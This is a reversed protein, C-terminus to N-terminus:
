FSPPQKNSSYSNVYPSDTKNALPNIENILADSLPRISLPLMTSLNLMILTLSLMLLM